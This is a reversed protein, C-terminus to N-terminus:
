LSSLTFSLALALCKQSHRFSGHGVSVGLAALFGRFDLIEGLGVIREVEEEV